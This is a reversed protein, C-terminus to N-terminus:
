SCLGDKVLYQLSYVIEGGKYYIRPLRRNLDCFIEHPITGIRGVLEEITIEDDGQKGIIVVEDGIKVDPIGTVRIMCQDMCVRGVVQARKGHVLVEAKNSLLRNFGDAYGIPMTAIVDGEETTFTGGYSLREGMHETKVNSIRCKLSLVPRVDLADNQTEGSPYVGYLIIGPRVMDMFYDPHDVIVASNGCHRIKPTFGRSQLGDLFYNYREWQVHTYRKDREDAKSFHTFLGTFEINPLRLIREIEDLSEKTPLFGIRGMGTDAKIHVRATKNQRVAEDSIAKALDYTYVTQDLNYGVIDDARHVETYGLILIPLDCYGSNRIEVAEDLLAVCIGDVGEEVLTPLIGLVGHGYGNAKVVAYVKRGEGVRARISRFTYALNDLDIEVWTPRINDLTVKKTLTAM